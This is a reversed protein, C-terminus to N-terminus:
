RKLSPVAHSVILPCMLIVLSSPCVILPMEVVVGVVVRGASHGEPPDFSLFGFTKECKISPVRSITNPLAPDAVVGRLSPKRPALDEIFCLM